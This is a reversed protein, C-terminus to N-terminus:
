IKHCAVSPARLALHLCWGNELTSLESGCSSIWEPSWWSARMVRPHLSDLLVQYGVVEGQILCNVHSLITWEPSQLSCKTSHVGLLAHWLLPCFFVASFHFFMM